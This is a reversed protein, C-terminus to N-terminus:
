LADTADLPRITDRSLHNHVVVTYKSEFLHTAGLSQVMDLGKEEVAGPVRLWCAQPPPFCAACHTPVISPFTPQTHPQPQPRPCSAHRLDGGRVGCLDVAQLGGGEIGPYPADSHLGRDM